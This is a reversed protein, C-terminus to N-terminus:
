FLDEKSRDLITNLTWIDAPDTTNFVSTDFYEFEFRIMEHNARTEPHSCDWFISEEALAKLEDMKDKNSVVKLIADQKWISLPM